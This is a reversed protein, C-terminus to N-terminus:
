LLLGKSENIKGQTELMSERMAFLREWYWIKLSYELFPKRYHRFLIDKYNAYNMSALQLRFSLTM